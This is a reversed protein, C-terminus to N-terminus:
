KVHPLMPRFYWNPATESLATRAQKRASRWLLFAALASLLTGAVMVWPAAAAVEPPAQQTLYPMIVFLTTNTLGHALTVGLLSRGWMVIYAFVLGVLTVFVVDVVSLYGIHLV